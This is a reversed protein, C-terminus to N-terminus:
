NIFSTKIQDFNKVYVGEVKVIINCFLYKSYLANEIYITDFCRFFNFLNLVLINFEAESFGRLFLKKKLSALKKFFFYKHDTKIEEILSKCTDVIASFNNSAGTKFFVDYNLLSLRSGEKKLNTQLKIFSNSLNYFEITFEDIFDNLIKKDKINLTIYKWFADYNSSTPEFLLKSLNFM